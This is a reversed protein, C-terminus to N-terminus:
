ETAKIAALHGLMRCVVAADDLSWEDDCIAFRGEVQVNGEMDDAGGVLSIQLSAFDVL